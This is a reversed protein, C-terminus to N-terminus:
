PCQQGAPCTNCTFDLVGTQQCGPCVDALCDCTIPGTGCAHPRCEPIRAGGQQLACVMGTGCSQGNFAPDQCKHNGCKQEILFWQGGCAAQVLGAGACDEYAVLKCSTSCDSGSVPVMKPPMCKGGDGAAGGGGGVESKGGQGSAGGASVGGNGGQATEGASGGKGTSGGTSAGSSGGGQNSKGTGGGAGTPEDPNGCGLLGCGVLWSVFCCRGLNMAEM